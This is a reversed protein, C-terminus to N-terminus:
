TPVRGRRGILNNWLMVVLLIDPCDDSAKSFSINKKEKKCLLLGQSYSCSARMKKGKPADLFSENSRVSSTPKRIPGFDAGSSSCLNLISIAARRGDTAKSLAERDLWSKRIIM